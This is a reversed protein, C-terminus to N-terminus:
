KTDSLYPVFVLRLRTNRVIEQTTLKGKKGIILSLNLLVLCRQTQKFGRDLKLSIKGMGDHDWRLIQQKRRKRKIWWIWMVWISSFM